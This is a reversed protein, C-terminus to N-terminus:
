VTGVTGERLGQRSKMRAKLAERVQWFRIQEMVNTQRALKM